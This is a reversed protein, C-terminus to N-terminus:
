GGIRKNIDKVLPDETSTGRFKLYERYSEASGESKLGERVRGQYYYVPPVFAYTPEDGQLLQLAEGRRKLCLEFEFDAQTFQGAEFYARGLDFRGLWTDLKTNAETFSELAKRLDRKKLAIEGELIKAYAQPEALLEKSMGTILPNAKEFRGAEIFTRAAMFRINLGDYHTLAKEASAVAPGTRGLALQTRALAALKAAALESRKSQLDQEIGKELIQAADSFRGDINALDALGSAGLSAGLPDIAAAKRYTEAAQAFQGQGVQSFALVITTIADPEAIKRAEREATVFDSNFNTINALNARYAARNPVIAVVQQMEAVAKSFDRLNAWCIALNNHAAVDAPYTKLLETYQKVCQPYDGTLRFFGGRTTFRERETMSDVHRVAETVYKVADGQNSMNASVNALGQYGLGFKPDLEVAKSYNRLAEDYKRNAAAERGAVWYRLVELSTTSLTAMAFMQASESAEDGLASRVRTVLRTATDIVQDKGAARSQDSSIVEGTLAHVAKLSVQYGPGVPEITGALVVGVGQKAALTRAAAEDLREPPQVGLTRTIGERDFAQVFGAGELARKAIAELTHDFSPDKTNNTFDAIVVKVTEHKAPPIFQRQYWWVGVSIALLLVIGAIAYPLRITRKIPILEGKEDLRDLAAVLEASTQFRKERDPELCRAIVQEIPKPISPDLTQALPPPQEIRAKLEEIASSAHTHRKGLLMDLFILGLAYIDARQDVEQGKAQEPAMYQVTGLITGVLTKAVASKLSDIAEAPALHAASEPPLQNSRAIGFDMIVARDKLVMINAPKLDRHVIGVEHAAALGAAVDRIIGLATPVPMKGSDKLVTSLDSGELYPMTIYKIGDIEGLDHIRVVNKHTVQRALVLEQKFRREMERAANPDSSSDPRIVKLAVAMGLEADWAHYVAGMGGIGLVRIIHYREGFAQGVELPGTAGETTRAGSRTGSRTGPRTGTPPRTSPRSRERSPAVFATEQSDTSATPSGSEESVLRTVDPDGPEFRTVDPDGPEFRTADPDGPEFRTVDPDVPDFRTADPDAVPAVKPDAFTTVDDATDFRTAGPEIFRTEDADSDPVSVPPPTLV